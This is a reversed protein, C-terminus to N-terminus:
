AFPLKIANASTDTPNTLYNIDFLKGEMITKWKAADNICGHLDSGSINYYNNTGYIIAIKSMSPYISYNTNSTDCFTFFLLVDLVVHQLLFM